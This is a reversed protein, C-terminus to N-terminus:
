RVPHVAVWASVCCGPALRALLEGATMADGAHLHHCPPEACGTTQRVTRIPSRAGSAVSLVCLGARRSPGIPDIYRQKTM